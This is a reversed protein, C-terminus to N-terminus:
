EDRKWGRVSFTHFPSMAVANDPDHLIHFGLPAETYGGTDVFYTGTCQVGDYVPLLPYMHMCMYVAATLVLLDRGWSAQYPTSVRLSCIVIAACPVYMDPM